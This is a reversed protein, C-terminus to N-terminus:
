NGESGNDEGVIIHIKMLEVREKALSDFCMVILDFDNNIENIEIYGEMAEISYSYAFSASDEIIFKFDQWYGREDYPYKLKYNLIRTDDIYSISYDMKVDSDTFSDIHIVDSEYYYARSNYQESYVVFTYDTDYELDQFIGEFTGLGLVKTKCISDNDETKLDCYISIGYPNTYSFSYSIANKLEKVIGIKANTVSPKFSNNNMMSFIIAVFFTLVGISSIGVGTITGISKSKKKIRSTDIELSSYDEIEKTNYIEDYDQYVEVSDDKIRNAEDLILPVNRYIENDENQMFLGEEVDCIIVYYFRM